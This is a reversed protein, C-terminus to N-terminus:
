TDTAVFTHDVPFLLAGSTPDHFEVNIQAGVLWPEIVKSFSTVELEAKILAMKLLCQFLQIGLTHQPCTSHGIIITNNLTASAPGAAVVGGTERTLTIGRNLATNTKKYRRRRLGFRRPLKGGLIGTIGTSKYRSGKRLRSVIKQRAPPAWQKPHKRWAMRDRNKWQDKVRNGIYTGTKNAAWRVVPMFDVPKTRSM